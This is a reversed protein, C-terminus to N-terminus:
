HATVAWVRAPRRNGPGARFGAPRVVGTRALVAVASWVRQRGGRGTDGVAAALEPVTAAGASRIARIVRARLPLADM